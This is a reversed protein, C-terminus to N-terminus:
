LRVGQELEIKICAAPKGTHKDGYIAKYEPRQTETHSIRFGIIRGAAYRHKKEYGACLIVPRGIVCTNENWRDGYPRLEEMGPKEGSLFKHYYETTVVIFLADTKNKQIVALGERISFKFEELGIPLRLAVRQCLYALFLGAIVWVLGNALKFLVVTLSTSPVSEYLSPIKETWSLFFAMMGIAIFFKTLFEFLDERIKSM